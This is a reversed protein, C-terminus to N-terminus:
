LHNPTLFQCLNPKVKEFVKKSSTVRLLGDSSKTTFVDQLGDEGFQRHVTKLHNINLRSGAINEAM